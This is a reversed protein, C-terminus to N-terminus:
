AVGPAAALTVLLVLGLQALYRPWFPFAARGFKEPRSAAYANAPFVAILFAVLLVGVLWRMGDAGVLQWPLVLGIGGAIECVGTIAILAAPSPWGARRLAPPIMARMGRRVSPVFHAIGMGAFIAALAARLIWVGLEVADM